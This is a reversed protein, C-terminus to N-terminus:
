TGHLKEDRSQLNELRKKNDEKIQKIMVTFNGKVGDRAWDPHLKAFEKHTEPHKSMTVARRIKIKEGEEIAHKWTFATM